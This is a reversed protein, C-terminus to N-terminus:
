TCIKILILVHLHFHRHWSFQKLNFSFFYQQCRLDYYTESAKRNFFIMFHMVVPLLYLPFAIWVELSFTGRLRKLFFLFPLHRQFKTPKGCEFTSCARPSAPTTPLTRALEVRSHSWLNGDLYYLLVNKEEWNLINRFKIWYIIRIKINIKHRLYCVCWFPLSIM